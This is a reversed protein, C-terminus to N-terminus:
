HGQQAAIECGCFACFRIHNDELTGDILTFSQGCSTEWYDPDFNEVWICKAVRELEDAARHALHGINTHYTWGSPEAIEAWAQPHIRRLLEITTAELTNEM